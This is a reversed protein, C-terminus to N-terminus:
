QNITEVAIKTKFQRKEKLIGQKKTALKMM